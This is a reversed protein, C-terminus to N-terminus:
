PQSATGGHSSGLNDLAMNLELVNVHPEGLFWFTRKKFTKIILSAVEAESIGRAKAIRSIQYVAALPSIDPDLGSGSATVLDAPIPQNNQPEAKYLYLVRNKIIAIYEPNSPGFNSGSSHEANYPFPITASPRGWFYKPDTFYQGIFKSGIIKNNQKILSGNAKWPFLLQAVGAIVGPYILGTLITFLILLISATKTQKLFESFM